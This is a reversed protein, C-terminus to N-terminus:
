RGRCANEPFDERNWICGALQRCYNWEYVLHCGHINSRFGPSIQDSISQMNCHQHRMAAPCRTIDVDYKYEEAADSLNNYSVVTVTAVVSHIRLFCSYSMDLLLGAVPTIRITTCQPERDGLSRVLNAEFHLTIPSLLANSM